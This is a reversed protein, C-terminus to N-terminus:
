LSGGTFLACYDQWHLGVCCFGCARWCVINDGASAQFPIYCCALYFIDDDLFVADIDVELLKKFDSM